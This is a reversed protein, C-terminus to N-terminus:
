FSSGPQQLFGIEEPTSKRGLVANRHPFRGFRRIIDRHRGAFDVYGAFTERLAPVVGGALAQYLAVCQEQHALQESHELPLYCFVREIPRLKGDAGDAIGALALTRALGDYAFARPSGRHMNRPFQDFLLILALRGRPTASWDDHKGFAAAQVLPAFRSRIEADIAPDKAWWLRRQTQATIADDSHTDFWFDLVTTPTVTGPLATNLPIQGRYHIPQVIRM